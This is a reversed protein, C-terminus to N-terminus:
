FRALFTDFVEEEDIYENKTNDFIRLDSEWYKIYMNGLQDHTKIRNVCSVYDNTKHKEVVEGTQRNVYEVTYKKM